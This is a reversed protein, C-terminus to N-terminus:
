HSTAAGIGTLETYTLRKGAVHRMALEFRGQDNMKKRNNYRFVQEDLYRDLHFPEVAVYTGRLGRKLLSWVNEIGQTHVRGNVYEEMHNVTKHVYDNVKHIGEYGIHQDTYIHSSRGVNKLIESQLAERKVNPIVKARVERSGRALMGMVVDKHDQDGRALSRRKSRHMNQPKGGIFTEDIEVPDRPTWGMPHVPEIDMAKRIRHMMFWATKQTIGLSRAVECSSVGNKCNCIMWFACMWKDLGLPSDEFITGVKLTFQRKCGKCHWLRRTKVFSHKESGCRPCSVLGNPWRLNVAYQFCRDPDSFDVIAQQLTSPAEM